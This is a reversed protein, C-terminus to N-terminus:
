PCERRHVSSISRGRSPRPRALGLTRRAVVRRTTSSSCVIPRWVIDQDGDSDMDRGIVTTVFAADGLVHYTWAGPDRPNPPAKLWAIPVEFDTAIGLAGFALDPGNQGDIDIVELPGWREDPITDILMETWNLPDTIDMGAPPAWHIMIQGVELMNVIDLRGDGDLDYALTTEVGLAEGTLTRAWAGTVLEPGPNFYISATGSQEWGAILDILGDGDVDAQHVSEAGLLLEDLTHSRWPKGILRNDLNPIPTILPTQATPGASIEVTLMSAATLVLSAPNLELRFLPPESEVAGLSVVFSLYVLRSELSPIDIQFDDSELIVVFTGDTEFKPSFMTHIRQDTLPDFGSDGDDLFVAISSFLSNAISRNLPFGADDLIRVTLERATIEPEGSAFLHDIHLMFTAVQRNEEYLAPAGSAATLTAGTTSAFRSVEQVHVTNGTQDAALIDPVSDGNIDVFLVDAPQTLGSFVVIPTLTRAATREFWLVDGSSSGSALVDLDGDHDIDTVELSKLGSPGTALTQLTFQLLAPNTNEHLTIENTISSGSLLDLDGDHDYDVMIVDKPTDISGPVASNTFLPTAGGDNLLLVLESEDRAAVVADLAGDRNIDGVTIELPNSVGTAIVRSTFAPVPAGDNEILIIQNTAAAAAIVDIDGDRDFDAASLSRADPVVGGIAITAFSLPVGGDNRHWVVADDNLSAALVDPDGDRDLDVIFLDRPGRFESSILRRDFSVPSGGLNRHWWVSADDRSAVVLDLDGDRDLDAREIAVPTIGGDLTFPSEMLSLELPPLENTYWGTVDDEFSAAALDADGDGDLDAPFVTLPNDSEMTIIHSVFVPPAGGTNEFFAIQDAVIGHVILDIDGDFDLDVPNAGKAGLITGATHQTFVPSAAGDNEWWRVDGTFEGVGIVDLDGDSDLDAATVWKATALNNTLSEKTFTPDPAGDSQYWAIEQAGGAASASLIDLNGDGNVDAAYVKEASNAMGDIIRRTWVIPSGGENEHWNITNETQGGASLVDMDGDHDVDAVYVSWANVLDDIIIHSTFVLPTGGMNEFWLVTKDQSYAVVIDLDGDRDIDDAWLERARREPANINHTIYTPNPGGSSEHWRVHDGLPDVLNATILDLDGDQDLDAAIVTRPNDGTIDVPIRPGFPVTGDAAAITSVCAVVVSLALCM